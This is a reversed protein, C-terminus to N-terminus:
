SHITVSLLYALFAAFSKACRVFSSIYRTVEDGEEQKEYPAYLGPSQDQKPRISQFPSVTQQGETDVWPLPACQLERAREDPLPDAAQQDGGVEDDVDGLALGHGLLACVCLGDEVSEVDGECAHAEM